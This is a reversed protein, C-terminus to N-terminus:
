EKKRFVLFKSFIYNLVVVVVSIPVKSLTLGDIGLLSFREAHFGDRALLILGEEILFSLVRGGFFAPIEKMLTKRSWDKSQFVFPKNTFYAFLVSVVFAIANSLLAYKAGLLMNAAWFVIFNVATTLVGFILYVVTERNLLKHFVKKLKESWTNM